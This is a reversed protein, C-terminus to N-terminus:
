DLLMGGQWKQKAADEVYLYDRRVSPDVLKKIPKGQVIKRLAYHIITNSIGEGYLEPISIRMAKKDPSSLAEEAPLYVGELIVTRAGTVASVRKVAELMMRVKEPKDDYTLCVGCFIVDVGQAAALLEGQNGADGHVTQLLSSSSFTEGLAELKQKSGSYAVVAFNSGILQKILARGWGNGARVVMAKVM